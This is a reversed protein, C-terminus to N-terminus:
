FILLHIKVLSTDPEETEIISETVEVQSPLVSEEKKKLPDEEVLVLLGESVLNEFRNGYKERLIEEKVIKGNPTKYDPM